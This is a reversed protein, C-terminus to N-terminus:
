DYNQIQTQNIAAGLQKSVMEFDALSIAGSMLQYKKFIACANLAKIQNSQHVTDLQSKLFCQTREAQTMAEFEPLGLSLSLGEFDAVANSNGESLKDKLGLLDLKNFSESIVGHKLLRYNLLPKDRAHMDWSTLSMDKEILDSFWSLLNAESKLEIPCHLSVENAGSCKAVALSIIQQQYIPLEKTGFQQKYLHLSASLVGDDSLGELKHIARLAAIDPVTELSIILQDSM